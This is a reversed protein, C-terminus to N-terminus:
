VYSVEIPSPAKSPHVDSLCMLREVDSIEIPLLAKLPHAGSSFM